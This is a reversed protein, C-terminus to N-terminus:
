TSDGIRERLWQRLEALKGASLVIEVLPMIRYRGESELKLLGEKTLRTIATRIENQLVAQNHDDAGFYTLVSEEIEAADVRASQEGAGQERHYITRLHVLVLTEARTYPDDKLLIPVELEGSRVQQKYAIGRESDVVLRIFLDHLRSQILDFNALLVRWQSANKEASLLRNRLLQVVVRRVEDDLTGTDGAFLEDPDDEMSVPAIFGAALALDDNAEAM